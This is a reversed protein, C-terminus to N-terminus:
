FLSLQSAALALANNRGQPTALLHSFWVDIHAEARPRATIGPEVSLFAAGLEDVMHEM